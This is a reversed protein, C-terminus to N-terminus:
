AVSGYLLPPLACLGVQIVGKELKLQLRKPSRVEFAATTSFSTRSFPVSLGVQLCSVNADHMGADSKNAPKIWHHVPMLPILHAEMTSHKVDHCHDQKLAHSFKAPM